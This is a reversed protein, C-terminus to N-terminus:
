YSKGVSVIVDYDDRCFANDEEGISGCGQQADNASSGDPAYFPRMRGGICETSARACAQKSYM